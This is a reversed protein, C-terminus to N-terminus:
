GPISSPDNGPAITDKGSITGDMNHIVLEGGGVAQLRRRAVNIADAKTNQRDTVAGNLTVKWTTAFSEYTVHASNAVIKKERGGANSLRVSWPTKIKGLDNSLTVNALFGLFNM